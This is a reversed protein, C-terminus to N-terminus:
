SYLDFQGVLNQRPLITAPRPLTTVSTAAGSGM